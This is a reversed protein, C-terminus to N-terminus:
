HIKAKFTATKEIPEDFINVDWKPDYTFPINHRRLLTLIPHAMVGYRLIIGPTTGM